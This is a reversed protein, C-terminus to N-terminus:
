FKRNDRRGARGCGRGARGRCKAGHAGCFGARQAQGPASGAGSVARRNRSAPSGFACNPGSAAGRGIEPLDDRGWIRSSVGSRSMRASAGRKRHFLADRLAHATPAWRERLIKITDAWADRTHIIVPMGRAAAMELQRIFVPMQIEKPVGWHYDLGIEGMGVVKRHSLLEELNEFTRADAKAADNPHVGATAFIFPYVDALRIAAELDPPGSGTGISLMYKLGAGLAREIVADRDDDFQADDLHCHSDALQM